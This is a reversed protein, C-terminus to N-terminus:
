KRLSRDIEDTKEEALNECDSKELNNVEHEAGHCSRMIRWGSRQRVKTVREDSCQM